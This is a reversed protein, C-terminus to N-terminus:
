EDEEGKCFVFVVILIWIILLVGGAIPVVLYYLNSMEGAQLPL